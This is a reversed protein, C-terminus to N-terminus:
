RSGGHAPFVGAQELAASLREGRELADAVLRWIEKEWAEKTDQAILAIATELLMGTRLLMGTQTCFTALQQASLRKSAAKNKQHYKIKTPKQM